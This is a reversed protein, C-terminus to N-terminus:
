LMGKSEFWGRFIKQEYKAAGDGEEVMIWDSDKDIKMLAAAKEQILDFGGWPETSEFRLSEMVGNQTILTISRM